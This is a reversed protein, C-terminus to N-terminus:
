VEESKNKLENFKEPSIIVGVRVDNRTIYITVDPFKRLYTMWKKLERKLRSIPVVLM